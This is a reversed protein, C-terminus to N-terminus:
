EGFIKLLLAGFGVDLSTVYAIIAFVFVLVVVFYQSVQPWTPWVVKKLEEVCQNIFEAPTTRHERTAVAQKRSPTAHGKAAVTKRQPRSSRAVAAVSEAEALQAEDDITADDSDPTTLEEAETEDAAIEYAEADVLEDALMEGPLDENADPSSSVDDSNFKSNVVADDKTM